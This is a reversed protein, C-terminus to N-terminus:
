NGARLIYRIIFGAGPATSLRWQSPYTWSPGPYGPITFLQSQSEAWHLTICLQVISEVSLLSYIHIYIHIIYIYKHIHIQIQIHVHIRIHIYIHIYTHISLNPYKYVVHIYIYDYIYISIPFLSAIQNVYPQFKRQHVLLLHNDSSSKEHRHWCNETSPSIDQQVPQSEQNDDYTM